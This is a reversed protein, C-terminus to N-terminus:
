PNRNLAPGRAGRHRLMSRLQHSTPFGTFMRISSGTEGKSTLWQATSRKGVKLKEYIFNQVDRTYLRKLKARQIYNYDRNNAGKFVSNTNTEECDSTAEGNPKTSPMLFGSFWLCCLGLGRRTADELLQTDVADVPLQVYYVM